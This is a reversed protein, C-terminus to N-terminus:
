VEMLEFEIDYTPNESKLDTNLCDIKRTLLSIRKARAFIKNDGKYGLVFCIPINKGPISFDSKNKGYISLRLFAKECQREDEAEISGLIANYIRVDWYDKAERYEHTKEGAKIKEFWEKKLNFTLM